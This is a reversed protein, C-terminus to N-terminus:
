QGQPQGDPGDCAGLAVVRHESRILLDLHGALLDVAGSGDGPVEALQTASTVNWIRVSGDEHGSLMLRSRSSSPRIRPLDRHWAEKGTSTDLASMRDDWGIALLRDGM